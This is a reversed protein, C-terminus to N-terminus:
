SLASETSLEDPVTPRAGLRRAQNELWATLAVNEFLYFHGGPLLYPTVPRGLFRGWGELDAASITDHTGGLVHARCSLACKPQAALSGLLELDARMIDLIYRRTSPDQLAGAPTGGLERLLALIREDSLDRYRADPGGEPRCGRGSLIVELREDAVGAASLRGALHFALEAGLSHGFLLLPRKRGLGARAIEDTIDSLVLAADSQPPTCLRTGRGPLDLAFVDIEASLNMGLQLYPFSSGGAHHLFLLEVGAQPRPRVNVLAATIGSSAGSLM